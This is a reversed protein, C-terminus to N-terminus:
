DKVNSIVSESLFDGNAFLSLSIPRWKSKRVPSAARRQKVCHCMNDYVSIQMISQFLTYDLCRSEEVYPENTTAVFALSFM